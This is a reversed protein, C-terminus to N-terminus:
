KVDVVFGVADLLVVLLTASKSCLGDDVIGVVEVDASPELVQGGQPLETKLGVSAEEVDLSNAVVARDTFGDEFLYMARGDDVVLAGTGKPEIVGTGASQECRQEDEMEQGASEGILIKTLVDSWQQAENGALVRLALHAVVQSSEAEVPEDLSDRARPAIADRGEAKAGRREEGARVIPQEPVTKGNDRVGIGRAGLCRQALGAIGDVV